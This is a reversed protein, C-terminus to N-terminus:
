DETLISSSRTKAYVNINDWYHHDAVGTKPTADLPTVKSPTIITGAAITSSDEGATNDQPLKASTSLQHQKSDVGSFSTLKKLKSKGNVTIKRM